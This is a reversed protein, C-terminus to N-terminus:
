NKMNSIFLKHRLLDFIIQFLYFIDFQVPFFASGPRQEGREKLM